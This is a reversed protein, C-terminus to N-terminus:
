GKPNVRVKPARFYMENEMSVFSFPTNILVQSPATFTIKKKSKIMLEEKAEMTIGKHSSIKVGTEDDFTLILDDRGATFYIGGPALKLEQGYETGLFRTNPDGTDECDAGNTRVCGTIIADQEKLGPIYLSANTGLQPMLYLMDTTPPVFPYWYAEEQNQEQDIKLHLKIAQDQLDLVTGELSIGQIKSNYIPNQRLITKRVLTARYILLGQKLEITVAGVYMEYNLFTVQDGINLEDHSEVEYYTYENSILNPNYTADEYFAKINKGSKYAIDEPLTKSKGKPYGFSIVQDGVTSDAVLVTEMLSAMRKMFQWDTEQYQIIPGNITVKPATIELSKGAYDQVVNAVIDSYNLSTNQFSRSKQQDDMISSESLFSAQLTYLGAEVSIDVDKIRGKFIAKMYDGEPIIVNVQDDITEKLGANKGSNESILATLYLEVHENLMKTIKLEYISQIEWPSIVKVKDYTIATM